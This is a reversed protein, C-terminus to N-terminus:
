TGVIALRLREAERRAEGIIRAAEIRAARLVESPEPETTRAEAVIRRAERRAKRRTIEARKHAVQMRQEARAIADADIPSPLPVGGNMATAVLERCWESLTLGTREAEGRVWEMAEPELNFRLCRTFRPKPGRKTANPNHPTPPRTERSM